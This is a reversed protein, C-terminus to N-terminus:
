AAEKEADLSAAAPDGLRNNEKKESDVIGTGSHRDYGGHRGGRAGRPARSGRPPRPTSDGGERPARDYRPGRPADADRPRNNTRPGDKRPGRNDAAPKSASSAAAPKAATKPAPKVSDKKVAPVQIEQDQADDNLLDYPNVSAM